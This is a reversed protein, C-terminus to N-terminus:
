FYTNKLTKLRYCKITNSQTHTSKKIFPDLYVEPISYISGYTSHYKDIEDRETLEFFRNTM